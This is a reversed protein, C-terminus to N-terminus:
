GRAKTVTAILDRLERMTRPDSLNSGIDLFLAGAGTPWPQQRLFLCAAAPHETNPTVASDTILGDQVGDSASWLWLPKGRSLFVGAVLRRAEDEEPTNICLCPYEATLLSNLRDADSMVGSYARPM